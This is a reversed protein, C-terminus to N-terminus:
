NTFVRVGEEYKAWDINLAGFLRNLTRLTDDKCNSKGILACEV